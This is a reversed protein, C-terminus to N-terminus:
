KHKNNFHQPRHKVSNRAIVCVFLRNYVMEYVECIRMTINDMSVSFVRYVSISSLQRAGLRCRLTREYLTNLRLFENSHNGCFIIFVVFKM